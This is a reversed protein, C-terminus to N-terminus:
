ACMQRFSKFALPAAIDNALVFDVKCRVIQGAERIEEDTHMQLIKQALTHAM